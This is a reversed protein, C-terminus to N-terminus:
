GIIKPVRFCGQAKDPANELSVEASFSGRVEDGRMVNHHPVVHFTAEVGGTDLENLKEMYHLIANLQGTFLQKEEASLRLRALLAVHEVEAIDVKM